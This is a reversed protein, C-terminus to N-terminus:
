VFEIDLEDFRFGTLNNREITNKLHESCILTDNYGNSIEHLKFLDPLQNEFEKKFVLKIFFIKHTAKIIQHELYSQIHVIEETQDSYGTNKIWVSKEFDIYNLYISAIQKIIQLHHYRVELEQRSEGDYALGLDYFRHRGLNLDELVQKAKESLTLGYGLGGDSGILDTGRGEKLYLKAFIPSYNPLIELNFHLNGQWSFLHLDYDWSPMFDRSNADDNTLIKFYRM